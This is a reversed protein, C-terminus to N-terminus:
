EEDTLRGEIRCGAESYKLLAKTTYNTMVYFLSSNYKVKDFKTERQRSVLKKFKSSFNYGLGVLRMAKIEGVTGDVLIIHLAYGQNEQLDRLETLNKSLAVHYPSDMWEMGEFKTLLFIIGKMELLKFQVPGRKVARIEADTPRNFYIMLTGGEDSVDFRIGEESVLDGYREGVAYRYM